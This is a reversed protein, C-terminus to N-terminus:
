PELIIKGGIGGAEILRHAEQADDLPLRRAVSINILGASVAQALEALANVDNHVVVFTPEAGILSSDLPTTAATFVGGGPKIHRALRSVQEGGVTDIVADFPLGEWDDAGLELVEAVGLAWAADFHSGRVAAIVSAGAQVAAFTAFQGVAGTAGTVLIRRGAEAKAHERALQVGTLGATPLAAATAFDLEDPIAVIDSAPAVAYEAYGGKTFGNLMAFVRDGVAVGEVGSGIADITGAVDYGPVHPFPVPAFSQFMGQRWKPDAPNVAAACLRLRVEGPAPEPMPAQAVTLVEPGGYESFQVVKM